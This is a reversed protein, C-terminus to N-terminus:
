DLKETIHIQCKRLEHLMHSLKFQRTKRSVKQYQMRKAVDHIRERTTAAVSLTPDNNLVRSVTGPSVNAEKAIDRISAM